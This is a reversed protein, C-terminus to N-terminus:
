ARDVATLHAFVVVNASYGTKKNFTGGCTLLRLEPGGASGYVKKDPFDKKPYTHVADVTFVATSRDARTVDVTAGPRLANLNLFVAPGTHTDRHGVMVAMGPQGPSPGDGYWGVLKPTSMPPTQLAGKADVSLETVPAEIMIGPISLKTPASRPLPAVTAHGPAPDKHEAAAPADTGGGCLRVLAVCLSTAVTLTLTLRVRRTPGRRRPKRWEPRTM